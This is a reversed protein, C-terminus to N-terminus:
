GKVACRGTSASLKLCRDFPYPDGSQVALIMEEVAEASRTGFYYDFIEGNVILAFHPSGTRGGSAEDLKDKYPKVDAPLFIRAPVASRIPKLVYSFRISRFAATKELKPLESQRWAKCPPCDDGGMYVVHIAPVPQQAFAPVAWAAVVSAVCLTKFFRAANM